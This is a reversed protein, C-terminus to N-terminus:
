GLTSEESIVATNELQSSYQSSRNKLMFLNLILQVIFYFMSSIVGGWIGYLPILVAYLIIVTVISVIRSINIEKNLKYKVMLHTAIMNLFYFPVVALYVQAYGVVEPYQRYLFLIPYKVLPYLIIPIM